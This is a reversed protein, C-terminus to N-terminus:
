IKVTLLDNQTENLEKLKKRSCEALIRITEEDFKPFKKRYYSENLIGYDLKEWDINDKTDGFEGAFVMLDDETMDRWEHILTKQIPVEEGISVNTQDNNNDQM